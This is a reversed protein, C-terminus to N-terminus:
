LKRLMSLVGVLKVARKALTPKRKIKVVKKPKGSVTVTKKTKKSRKPYLFYGISLTSLVTKLLWRASKIEHKLDVFADQAEIIDMHVDDELLNIKSKLDRKSIKKM